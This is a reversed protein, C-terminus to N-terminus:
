ASSFHVRRLCTSNGMAKNRNVGLLTWDGKQLTHLYNMEPEDLYM